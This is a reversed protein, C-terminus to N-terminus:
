PQLVFERLDAVSQALPGGDFPPPVATSARRTATPDAEGGLSRGADLLQEYYGREMREYDARNLLDRRLVDRVRAPTGSALRAPFLGWGLLAATALLQVSLSSPHGM